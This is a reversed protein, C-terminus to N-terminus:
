SVSRRTNNGYKSVPIMAGPKGRLQIKHVGAVKESLQADVRDVTVSSM